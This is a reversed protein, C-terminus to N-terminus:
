KNKKGALIGFILYFVLTLIVFILVFANIEESWKLAVASGSLVLM